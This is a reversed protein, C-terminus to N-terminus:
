SPSETSCCSHSKLSSVPPREISSSEHSSIRGHWRRCNGCSRELREVLGAVDASSVRGHIQVKGCRCSADVRRHHTTDFILYFLFLVALLWAANIIWDNM